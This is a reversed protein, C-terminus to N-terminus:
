CFTTKFKELSHENRVVHDYFRAQWAFHPNHHKRISKTVASKYSGIITSLSEKKLPGFNNTHERLSVAHRTEVDTIGILGHIHNPMIIFEDLEVHDFHDPIERFCFNAVKGM